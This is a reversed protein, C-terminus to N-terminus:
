NKREKNMESLLHKMNESWTHKTSGDDESENWLIRRDATRETYSVYIVLPRGCVEGITIYRDENGSHEKDYMEIRFADNFVWSATEFDIGHKKINTKEKAEDWEFTM